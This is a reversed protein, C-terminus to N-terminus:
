HRFGAQDTDLDSREFVAVRRDDEDHNRGYTILPYEGITSWCDTIVVEYFM